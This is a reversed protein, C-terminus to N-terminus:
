VLDLEADADLTAAKERAERELREIIVGTKSGPRKFSAYLEARTLKEDKEKAADLRRQIYAKVDEASKGTAEMIARVVLGAGAFSDGAERAKKFEGKKLREMMSEHAIVADEVTKVDSSEDGVKQHIGHVLLDLHTAAPIEHFFLTRVNGNVYDFRVGVPKGEADEAVEKRVKQKGAFKVKRGDDMTVETYETKAKKAAPATQEVVESM